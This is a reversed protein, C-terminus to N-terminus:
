KKPVTKTFWGSGAAVQAGAGLAMGIISPLVSSRQAAIQSALQIQSQSTGFANGMVGSDVNIQTNILDNEMADTERRYNNADEQAQAASDRGFEEKGAEKALSVQTPDAFNAALGAVGTDLLNQRRGFQEAREAVAQKNSAFDADDAITGSEIYGRRKGVRAKRAQFEPSGDVLRKQAARGTDYQEESRQTQQDQIKKQGKAM